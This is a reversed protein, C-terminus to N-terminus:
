RWRLREDTRGCFASYTAIRVPMVHRASAELWHSGIQRNSEEPDGGIDNAADHFATIDEVLGGMVYRIFVSDGYLTELKRLAFLPANTM